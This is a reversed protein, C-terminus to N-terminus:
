NENQKNKNYFSLLIDPILESSNLLEILRKKNNDLKTQIKFYLENFNENKLKKFNDLLAEYREFVDDIEDFSYDFIEDYLEFGYKELEKNQGKAGYSIFPQKLYLCRYTKETVYPIELSTEGVLMMFSKTDTLQPSFEDCFDESFYNDLNLIEEKWYKFHPYFSDGISIDSGSHLEHLKNWSNFGIDLLNNKCLLDMMIRRHIRPRLNYNTYLKKFDQKHELNDVDVDMQYFQIYQQQLQRRTHDILLSPWYHIKFNDSLHEKEFKTLLEPYHSGLVLHFQINNNKLFNLFNILNTKDSTDSVYRGFWPTSTETPMVYFVTKQESLEIETELELLTGSHSIIFTNDIIKKKNSQLYDFLRFNLNRKYLM